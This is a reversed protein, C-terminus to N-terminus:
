IKKKSEGIRKTGKENEKNQEQENKRHPSSLMEQFGLKESEGELMLCKVCKYDKLSYKKEDKGGTHPHDKTPNNFSIILSLPSVIPYNEVLSPHHFIAM